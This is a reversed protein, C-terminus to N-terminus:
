IVCNYEKWAQEEIERKGVDLKKVGTMEPVLFEPFNDDHPHRHFSIASWSSIHKVAMIVAYRGGCVGGVYLFGENSYSNEEGLSDYYTVQQPTWFKVIGHGSLVDDKVIEIDRPRVKLLKKGIRDYIPSLFEEGQPPPGFKCLYYIAEGLSVIDWVYHSNEWDKVPKEPISKLASIINSNERKFASVYYKFLADDRGSSIEKVFHKARDADEQPWHQGHSQTLDMRVIFRAILLKDLEVEELDNYKGYLISNFMDIVFSHFSQEHSELIKTCLLFSVLFARPQEYSPIHIGTYNRDYDRYCTWFAHMLHMICAVSAPELYNEHNPRKSIEALVELLAIELDSHPERSNNELISKSKESLQQIRWDITPASNQTPRRFISSLRFGKFM